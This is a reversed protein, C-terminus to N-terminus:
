TAAAAGMHERLSLLEATDREFQKLAAEHAERTKTVRVFAAAGRGDAVATASSRSYPGFHKDAWCRASPLSTFRGPAATFVASEQPGRLFAEVAPCSSAATPQRWSFTPKHKAELQTARAAALRLVDANGSKVAALVEPQALSERLLAERDAGGREALAAACFRRLADAAAPAAPLLMCLLACLKVRAEHLANRSQTAPGAAPAFAAGGADLLAPLLAATLQWALEPNTEEVLDALTVCRKAHKPSKSACAAVLEVVAAGVAAGCGADLLEALADCVADSAIGAHAALERLVRLALREASGGGCSCMNLAELFSEAASGDSDTAFTRGNAAVAVACELTEQAEPTWADNDGLRHEMLGLVATSSYLAAIQLARSRPWIVLVARRYILEIPAGENGTYGEFNEEDPEVDCEDGFLEGECELVRMDDLLLMNDLDLFCTDLPRGDPSVCATLEQGWEHTTVKGFSCRPRPPSAPKRPKDEEDEDEDEDEDEEESYCDEHYPNHYSDEELDGSITKTVVALYVDLLSCSLLAGALAADRGKLQGFALGKATYQHSLPVACYLSEPRRQEEAGPDSVWTKDWEKVALRLASVAEGDGRPAPLPAADRVLSYILVLRRGSVVPSLEHECDAYFAAAHFGGASFDFTRASGGHRVVLKGGEYEGSPLQVVLTAFMGGVKETDRHAKFHGGPEYLVLKYPLARVAGSQWEDASDLGFAHAADSALAAVVARWADCLQVRSADVQLADRVAADVVTAAGQGHPAPEAVAALAAAQEDSLPLQLAGVGKVHLTCAAPPVDVPGGWAFSGPSRLRRLARGLQEHWGGAQLAVVGRKLGTMKTRAM